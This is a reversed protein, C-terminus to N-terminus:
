LESDAIRLQRARTLIADEVARTTELSAPGSRSVLAIRLSRADLAPDQVYVTARYARNSGPPTGFGMVLVGSFPDAAQIPMFDLVDLAANWIYKNVEITINPDDRGLFLDTITERNEIEAIPTNQRQELVSQPVGAESRPEFLSASEGCGALVLPIVVWAVKNKMSQARMEAGDNLTLDNRIRARFAGCPSEGLGNNQGAQMVTADSCWYHRM